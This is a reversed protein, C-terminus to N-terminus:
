SFVSNNSPGSGPFSEVPWCPFSIGGSRSRSWSVAYPFDHIADHHLDNNLTELLSDHQGDQATTVTHHFQLFLMLFTTFQIM